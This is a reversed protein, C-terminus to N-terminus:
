HRRGSEFRLHCNGIKIQDGSTLPARMVRAGNLYVGSDSYNDQVYFYGNIYDIRAHERSVSQDLLQLQNGRRRGITFGTTLIPVTQSQMPGNLIVLHARLDLKSLDGSARANQQSMLIATAGGGIIVVGILLLGMWVANDNATQPRILSATSAAGVTSVVVSFQTGDPGVDAGVILGRWVGPTPNRVIIQSLTPYNIRSVGPYNADITRNNPDILM